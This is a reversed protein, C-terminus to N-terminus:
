PFDAGNLNGYLLVRYVLASYIDEVISINIEKNTQKNSLM